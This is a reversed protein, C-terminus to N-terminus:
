HVDRTTADNFVGTMRIFEENHNLVLSDIRINDFNDEMVVRNRDDNEHNVYWLNNDFLIGSRKIGFVSQGKPNITHYFSLDFYDGQDKEGRFNASIALTYNKTTNDIELGNIAYIKNNITGVTLYTNHMPNDYDVQLNIKEIHNNFAMI